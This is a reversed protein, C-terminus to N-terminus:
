ESIFEIKIIGEVWMASSEKPVILRLPIGEGKLPDDPGERFSLVSKKKLMDGELDVFYGDAAIFRIKTFDGIERGKSKILTTLLPGYAYHTVKSGYTNTTSYDKNICELEALETISVEINEDALGVLEVVNDKYNLDDVYGSELKTGCATFTLTLLLMCIVYLFLKTHTKNRIPRIQMM